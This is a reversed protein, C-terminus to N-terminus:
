EKQAGEMNNEKEGTRGGNNSGHGEKQAKRRLQRKMLDKKRIIRKSM